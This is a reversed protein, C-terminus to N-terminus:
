LDNPTIDESMKFERYEDICVRGDNEWLSNFKFVIKSCHWITDEPEEIEIQADYKLLLAKLDKKFDEIRNM